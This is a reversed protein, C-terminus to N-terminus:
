SPVRSGAPAGAWARARAGARVCWGSKLRQARLAPPWPKSTGPSSPFSLYFDGKEGHRTGAAQTAHAPEGHGHVSDESHDSHRHGKVAHLPASAGSRGTSCPRPVQGEDGAGEPARPSLSESIGGLLRVFASGSLTPAQSGRDGPLPRAPAALGRLLLVWPPAHTPRPRGTGKTCGSLLPRLAVM